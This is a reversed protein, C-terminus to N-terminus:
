LLYKVCYLNEKSLLSWDSTGEKYKLLLEGTKGARKLAYIKVPHYGAKLKVTTFIEKGSSYGFDADLLEAEHLRVYAKGKTQLSFTYSGDKPAKFYAEYLVMGEPAAGPVPKLGEIRGKKQVAKGKESVM